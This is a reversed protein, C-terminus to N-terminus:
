DKERVLSRKVFLFDTNQSFQAKKEEWKGIELGTKLLILPM